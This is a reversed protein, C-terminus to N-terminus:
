QLFDACMVFVLFEYSGEKADTNTFSVAWTNGRPGSMYVPFRHYNSKSFYGGSIPYKNGPCRATATWSQNVTNKAAKGKFPAGTVWELNALAKAPPVPPNIQGSALVPIVAALLAVVRRM